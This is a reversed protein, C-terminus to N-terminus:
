PLQATKDNYKYDNTFIITIKIKIVVNTTM